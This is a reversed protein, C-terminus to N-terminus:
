RLRTFPETFFLADIPLSDLGPQSRSFRLTGDPSVSWTASWLVNASTPTSGNAKNMVMASDGRIAIWFSESNAPGPRDSVQEYSMQGNAIEFTYTGRAQERQEMTADLNKLDEGTVEFRYRGDFPGPDSSLPWPDLALVSVPTGCAAVPTSEAADAVADRISDIAQRTTADGQLSEVYPAVLERLAQRQVKSALVVQGGDRCYQAAAEADKPVGAIATDLTQAAARDLVARQEGTLADIAATNAFLVNMRPFLAVNGTGIAPRSMVSRALGFSSEVIAITGDALKETFDNDDWFGPKAGLATFAAYTEESPLSRLVAGAFDEPGLVAAHVGFPHRITEPLLALGSMGENALGALMPGAVSADRAVAAAGADTEILFPVTLARLSTVGETSFARSAVLGIDSLGARVARIASQDPGLDTPYEPDYTPQITIRGQSLEAVAETFATLQAGSPRDAAEPSIATLVIPAVQGGAKNLDTRPSAASCGVLFLSLATVTVAAFRMQDVEARM